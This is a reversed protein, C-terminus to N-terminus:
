AVLADACLVRAKGAPPSFSCFPTRDPCHLVRRGERGCAEPSAAHSSLHSANQNFAKDQPRLRRYLAAGGPGSPTDNNGRVAVTDQDTVVTMHNSAASILPIVWCPLQIQLLATLSLLRAPTQRHGKDRRVVLWGPTCLNGPFQFSGQDCLHDRHVPSNLEWAHWLCPCKM